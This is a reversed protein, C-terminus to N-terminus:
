ERTRIKSRLCTLHPPPNPPPPTINKKCKISNGANGSFLFDPFLFCVFITTNAESGTPPLDRAVSNGQKNKSRVTTPINEGRHFCEWRPSFMGVATLVNGGRHSCEWRPSFYEWRPSFMGVATLVNGGCHSTNGGLHFCEWRPSFMGVATLVNGGRHSCEWRPSFYEWRPSFMGVATLVNGGCHSTNGGLHFCEWRPSFM